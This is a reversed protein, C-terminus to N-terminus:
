KNAHKRTFDIAFKLFGATSRQALPLLVSTALKYSSDTGINSVYPFYCRSLRANFLLWDSPTFIKNYIGGAEVVFNNYNKLVWNEYEKHGSFAAGKAHHPVCLDQILHSAAGLYFYYRGKDGREWNTIAKNFCNDFELRADPWPGLGQNVVPDFYHSFNKWGKDAWLVGQKLFEIYNSINRAYQIAGDNKLILLAQNICFLHTDGKGSVLKQIPTGAALFLKVANWSTPGM